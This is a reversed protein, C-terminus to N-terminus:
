QMPKPTVAPIETRLMLDLYALYEAILKYSDYYDNMKIAAFKDSSSHLIPYTQTTISHLTIRPIHYRAFSESDTSAGVSEVNVAGLPLHTAAAATTLPDMLAKDAHSAWVKTPGLGLSDFNVMGKVNARETKSMHDAYYSSGLLGREEGSFGVFIFTHRRAKGNLSYLLSPLLVAGTWNDVVGDGFDEVHDTHAGVVIADGSEGPLVCIVNPPFKRAIFQESLNSNACGAEALWTRIRVEREGNRDSVSKLHKEILDRPHLRFDQATAGPTSVFCVFFVWLCVKCVSCTTKDGFMKDLTDRALCIVHGFIPM